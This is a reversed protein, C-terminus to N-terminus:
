TLKEQIHLHLDLTLLGAETRVGISRIYPLYEAAGAKVLIAKLDFFLNNGSLEISQKDSAVFPLALKILMGLWGSPTLMLLLRPDKQFDIFPALVAEIRGQRPLPFQSIELPITLRNNSQLQISLGKIPGISGKRMATLRVIDNLVAERIPLHIMVDSGYLAPFGEARQQQLIEKV